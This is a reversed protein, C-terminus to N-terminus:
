DITEVVDITEVIEYHLESVVAAPACRRAEDIAESLTEVKDIMDPTGSHLRLYLLHDELSGQEYERDIGFILYQYESDEVDAVPEPLEPYHFMRHDSDAEKLNAIANFSMVQHRKLPGFYRNGLLPCGVKIFRQGHRTEVLSMTGGDNGIATNKLTKM